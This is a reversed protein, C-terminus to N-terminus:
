LNLFFGCVRAETNKGAADTTVLCGINYAAFKQVADYVPADERITFDISQYGSFKLADDATAGIAESVTTLARPAAISSAVVSRRAFSTAARSLMTFYFHFVIIRQSRPQKLFAEEVKSSAKHRVGALYTLSHM